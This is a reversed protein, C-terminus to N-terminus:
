GSAFEKNVKALPNGHVVPNALNEVLDGGQLLFQFHSDLFLSATQAELEFALANHEFLSDLIRVPARFQAHKAPKDGDARLVEDGHGNYIAHYHRQKQDIEADAEILQAAERDVPYGPYLARVIEHQIMPVQCIQIKKFFPCQM